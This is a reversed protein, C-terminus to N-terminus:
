CGNGGPLTVTFEAGRPDRSSVALHGGHMTVIRWCKSLGLGLGRGAERGSYFPDFVHPRIESAIGPGDDSVRIRVGDPQAAQVAVEIRGGGVLAELANLCLSRLAAGLQTRDGSVNVPQESAHLSMQTRQDCAQERLEECVQRALAVIDFPKHAARPPRAFLMMDAIMEHARFAQANISALMRRRQPDPEVRLLTQARASINALPNNIEHGAGYALEKLSEIKERELTGEFDRELTELRDLKAWLATLVDSPTQCLWDARFVAMEAALEERTPQVEPPWDRGDVLDIARAVCDRPELVDRPPGAAIMELTDRLSEPLAEYGAPSEASAAFWRRALHVLGLFYAADHNLGRSRALERALRAVGLSRVALDVWTDRQNSAPSSDCSELAPWHESPQTSLWEALGAVTTFQPLDRSKGLLIAWLALSADQSVAAALLPRDACADQGSIFASALRWVTGGGLPLRFRGAHTVPDQLWQM